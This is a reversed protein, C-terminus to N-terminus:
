KIRKYTKLFIKIGMQYAGVLLGTGGAAGVGVGAGEGAGAAGM